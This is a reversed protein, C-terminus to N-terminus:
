DSTLKHQWVEGAAVPIPTPTSPGGEVRQQLAASNSTLEPLCQASEKPEMLRVKWMEFIPIDTDLDRGWQPFSRAM